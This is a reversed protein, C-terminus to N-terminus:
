NNKYQTKSTEINIDLLYLLLCKTQGDMGNLQFLNLQLGIEEGLTEEKSLQEELFEELHRERQSTIFSNEILVVKLFQNNGRHWFFFICSLFLWCPADSTAELLFHRWTDPAWYKALWGIREWRPFTCSLCLWFDIQFYM